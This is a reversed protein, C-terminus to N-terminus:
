VSHQHIPFIFEDTISRGCNSSILSFGSINISILNRSLLTSKFIVEHLSGMCARDHLRDPVSWVQNQVWISIPWQSMTVTHSLNFRFYFSSSLPSWTSWIACALVQGTGRTGPYLSTVSFLRSHFTWLLKCISTSQTGFYLYDKLSLMGHAFM